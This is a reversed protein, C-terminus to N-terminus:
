LERLRPNFIRDLAFGVLAFAMGTILLLGLPELVWFYYGNFAGNALADYIIKGWTPLYLDYIGLMALTAELFVFGPITAVLQPVLVPIIRPTLYNFVIRWDGAGYAQAAEIYPSQKVQLFASRFSKLPTGFITFFIIISVIVWINKSYLYYVMIGIPLMPLTINVESIRQILGDVAGGFWVGLAAVIMSFLTTLVAGVFGVGLAAPTGWLLAILLDRRKSDTGALGFVKGYLVFQSEIDANDEFLTASLRLEYKGRVAREPDLAPNIFLMQEPYKNKLKRQLKEDLSVLYTAASTTSFTAIQREQQDPAVWTLVIFPRKESYKTHIFLAIDQPFDDYPYDFAYSIVVQKLNKDLQTVTKTATGDVSNLVITEPLKNKRFLNTWAPMALRPQELFDDKVWYTIVGEYPIAVVVTLSIALLIFIIALGVIATPYKVLQRFFRGLSALSKQWTQRLWVGPNWITKTKKYLPRAASRSQRRQIQEQWWDKLSFFPRLPAAVQSVNAIDVRPDVMVYFIDLLFFTVAMLYAFLTILNVVMGQQYSRMSVATMYMRGIGPWGFFVELAIATQWFGLVALSFNTIIYSLAPRLVYRQEIIRNPLGKARGVEVYDDGSHILFFTRWTYVLQFFLSLFISLVPLISHRIIMWAYGLRTEPVEPDYLGGFPLWHLTVAFVIVLIIGHVWSPASSIPSLAVFLRDLWTGYRLSLMVAFILSFIFLLAAATGFLTLTYPLAAIVDPNSLKFLLASVTWGACRLLFPQHLGAAEEMENVLEQYIAAKQEVPTENLPPKGFMANISEAISARQMEDVYGGLNAVVVAIYVGVILTLVLTVLRLLLYRTIRLIARPVSQLATTKIVKAQQNEPEAHTFQALLGNIRVDQQLDAPLLALVQSAIQLAQDPAVRQGVRRAALARRESELIMQVQQRLAGLVRQRYDDAADLLLYAKALMQLAAKSLRLSSETSVGKSQYVRNLHDAITLCHNAIDKKLSQGQDVRGQIGPQALVSSFCGLSEEARVDAATSLLGASLGKGVLASANESDIALARCYAQYAEAQRNTSAALDGQYLAQALQQTALPSLQSGSSSPPQFVNVAQSAPQLADLAHRAKQNPPDIELVRKYCFAKQEAANLCDAMLLWAQESRPHQRIVQALLDRAQTIQGSKLYSNAKELSSLLDSSM